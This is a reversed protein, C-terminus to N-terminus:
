FPVNQLFTGRLQPQVYKKHRVTYQIKKQTIWAQWLWHSPLIYAVPVTVPRVFDDNQWMPALRHCPNGYSDGCLGTMHLEICKQYQWAHGNWSTWWRSTRTIGRHRQGETIGANHVKRHQKRKKNYTWLIEVDAFYSRYINQMHVAASTMFKQGGM